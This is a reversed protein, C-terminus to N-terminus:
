LKIMIADFKPVTIVGGEFGQEDGARNVAIGSLDVRCAVASDSYNVLFLAKEGNSNSWVASEIAPIEETRNQKM